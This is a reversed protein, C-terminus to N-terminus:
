PAAIERPPWPSDFREILHRVHRISDVVMSEDWLFGNLCQKLAFGPEHRFGKALGRLFSWVNRGVNSRYLGLSDQYEARSVALILERWEPVVRWAQPIGSRPDDLVSELCTLKMRSREPLKSTAQMPHVRWTALRDPLYVIDSALAARMEWEEDAQSGRDTRFLGTRNLLSRRFMVASVTWWIIGLAAHLLFETLGSRVHCVDCWSGYFVKPHRGRHAGPVVRGATDIVDYDCICIDVRRSARSPHRNREGDHSAGLPVGGSRDGVAQVLATQAGDHISPVTSVGACAGKPNYSQRGRDSAMSWHETAGEYTRAGASVASDSARSPAPPPADALADLATAMRGLCDHSMTDDATAIYVYEGRARRLCENWGAYLGARPVQFARVRHDVGALEKLDEWTGDTSFSDCAILEWNALTQGLITSIRPELFRKANLTPLCISVRPLDTQATTGM